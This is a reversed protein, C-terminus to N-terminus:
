SVLGQAPVISVKRGKIVLRGSALASVAESYLSHEIEKIRAHLSAEDDDPLVEIARQMVIPGNDMQEDAFHVTTGTVKVGWELADRVAHVGPFAPLLAPHINLIQNEFAKIFVPPLILMFGALCVLDVRRNQLEEVLHRGYQDRDAFAKRDAFLAEVGASRARELAGSGLKDSVVVVVEAGALDGRQSADILAQANSGTGSALVAIRSPM